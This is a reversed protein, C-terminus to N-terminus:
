SQIIKNRIEENQWMELSKESLIQKTEDTHFHGTEGSFSSEATEEKLNAWESSEKINNERSFIVAATKADEQNDYTGFIITTVDNGHKKIHRLWYLGSGKYSFADEKSTFGFYKLGTKNHIKIYLTIM